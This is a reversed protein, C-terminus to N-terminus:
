TVLSWSRLHFLLYLSTGRRALLLAGSDWSTISWAWVASVDARPRMVRADRCDPIVVCWIFCICFSLFIDKLFPVSLIFVFGGTPRLFARSIRSSIAASCFELYYLFIRHARARQLARANYLVQM